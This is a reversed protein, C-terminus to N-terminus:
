FDFFAGFSIRQATRAKDASTSPIETGNDITGKYINHKNGLNYEGGITLGPTPDYMINFLVYQHEFAATGDTNTINEPSFNFEQITPSRFSSFGLVVNAHWRQSFFHEYAVWSGLAPVSEVKGPYTSVADYNLGGFSVLYGAIGVGGTVQFQFSNRFRQSTKVYGSFSFGYGLTRKTDMGNKYNMYRLIGSLRLHGYKTTKRVAGIMDPINQFAAALTSDINSDFTIEARPQEVGVSYKWNKPTSWFFKIQPERRWVGSPPGDWDMVNPWIDKDGFFTWDQGIHMFKYNFWAHRLRVQNNGAWADLELYGIFTGTKTQRSSWLRIQSQHLDMSFRDDNNTGWVDIKGVNFTENEQLGGSIDYIGNLKAKILLFGQWAPKGEVMQESEWNLIPTKAYTVLDATDMTKGGTSQSHVAISAILLSITFILKKM